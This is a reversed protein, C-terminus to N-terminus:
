MALNTLSNCKDSQHARLVWYGILEIRSLQKSSYSKPIHVYLLTLDRIERPWKQHNLGQSSLTRWSRRWRFHFCTKSAWKISLSAEIMSSSSRLIMVLQSSLSKSTESRRSQSILIVVACVIKSISFTLWTRLSTITTPKVSPSVNKFTNAHSWRRTIWKRLKLRCL